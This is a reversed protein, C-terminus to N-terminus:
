IGGKRPRRQRDEKSSLVGKGPGLGHQSETFMSTQKRSVKFFHIGSMTKEKKKKEYEKGNHNKVPYQSYSGTSYLLVKNNIWERHLLKCRSMGFEWDM